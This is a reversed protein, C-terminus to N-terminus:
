GVHVRKGDALKRFAVRRKTFRRQPIQHKAGLGALGRFARNRSIAKVAGNESNPSLNQNVRFLELRPETFLLAAAM